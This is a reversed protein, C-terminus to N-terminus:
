LHHFTSIFLPNLRRQERDLHAPLSQQNRTTNICCLWSYNNQNNEPATKISIIIVSHGLAKSKVGSRKEEATVGAAAAAAAAGILPWVDFFINTSSTRQFHGDHQRRRDKALRLTEVRTLPYLYPM